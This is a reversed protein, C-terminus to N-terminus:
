GKLSQVGNIFFNLHLEITKMRLMMLTGIEEIDNETLKRCFDNKCKLQWCSKMEDLLPKMRDPDAKMMLQIIALGGAQALLELNGAKGVLGQLSALSNDKDADILVGALRYAYWEGQEASMETIRFVKGADRGGTIEVDTFERAM